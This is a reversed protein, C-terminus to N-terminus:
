YVTAKPTCEAVRTPSDDYVKQQIKTITEILGQNTEAEDADFQEVSPEYRVPSLSAAASVPM